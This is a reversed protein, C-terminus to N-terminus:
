KRAPKLTTKKAVVVSKKVTQTKRTITSKATKAEIVFVADRKNIKGFEFRVSVLHTTNFDSLIYSFGPKLKGWIDTAEKIRIIKLGMNELERQVIRAKTDASHAQFRGLVIFTISM